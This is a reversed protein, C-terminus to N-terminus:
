RRQHCPSPSRGASSRREMACRPTTTARRKDGGRLDDRSNKNDDGLLQASLAAACRRLYPWSSSSSSWTRTHTHTQTHTHTICVLGYTGLRRSPERISVVRLWLVGCAILQATAPISDCSLGNPVPGDRHGSDNLTAVRFHFCVGSFQGVKRM